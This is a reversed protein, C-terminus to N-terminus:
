FKGFDKDDLDIVEGPMAPAVPPSDIQPQVVQPEPSSMQRQAAVGRINKIQFRGMMEKLYAAQSSLEEAASAGEEANATNQQTVQDIQGIGINVQSIGEAQENSAAAIESVLDNVKSVSVVIESLGDATRGAIETGKTTKEVSGEILEATEKAAKASRAALNRVEEAVVAFGKGHRGARAAEVAANLALLNTQFAIEDITKIIKSIKQSAESIDEMAAVMDQMRENGRKAAQEMEDALTNAIGANEANTKTQSGMETMSSTIQELSAAQESAGQSLSQSADAVQGSGSAIEEAAINIEHIVQNLNDSMAKLSLGLSDRESALVVEDQLDNHAIHDALAGKAKLNAVMVDMAHIIQGTEDKTNSTLDVSFDGESLTTIACVVKQLPRSIIAALYLSLFVGAVLAFGAVTLAFRTANVASKKTKIIHDKVRKHAMSGIEVVLPEVAHTSATMDQMFAKIKVDEAVLVSFGKQYWAVAKKIKDQTKTDWAIELLSDEVLVLQGYVKKVYKGDRRLLYDKEHRRLALVKALQEDFLGALGMIEAAAARFDGQLGSKYDLGKKEESKVVDLFRALYTEALIGCEGAKEALDNAGVESALASIQRATDQLRAIHEQVNKVYKLNKRALFDKESRRSQLMQIQLDKALEAIKLEERIVQEYDGSVRSLSQSFIALAALFLMITLGTSVLLKSRIKLNKLMNM